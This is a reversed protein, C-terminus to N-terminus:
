PKRKKEMYAKILDILEVVREIYTAVIIGTNAPVGASVHNKVENPLANRWREGPMGDTAIERFWGSWIGPAAQAHGGATLDVHAHWTTSDRNRPCFAAWIM